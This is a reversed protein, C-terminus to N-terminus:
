YDREFDGASKRVAVNKKCCLGELMMGTGGISTGLRRGANERLPLQPSFAPLGAQYSLIAWAIKNSQYSKAEALTDNSLREFIPRLRQHRGVPSLTIDFQM